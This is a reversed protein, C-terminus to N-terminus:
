RKLADSVLVSKALKRDLSIDRAGIRLRIPGAFPAAEILGVMAKPVLGLEGFYRLHASSQDTIRRVIVREGLKLDALSQQSEAAVIGMKTPIPDGHPDETPDGLYRAIHDELNDSLVHELKHAEGHVQDWPIDLAKNLFLEVLRHRRVVELAIKEGAPLLEVGHYPSHRVLKKAVLKKIMNTTSAASIGLEAALASNTITNDSAAARLLYIAKLYDEIAFTRLGNKNAM